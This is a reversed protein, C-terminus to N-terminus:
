HKLQSLVYNVLHIKEITQEVDSNMKLLINDYAKVATLHFDSHNTWEAFANTGIATCEKLDFTKASTKDAHQRMLNWVYKLDSPADAVKQYREVLQSDVMKMKNILQMRQDAYSTCLQYIATTQLESRDMGDSKLEIEPIISNNAIDRDISLDSFNDIRIGITTLKQAMEHDIVATYNWYIDGREQCHKGQAEIFARDLAADDLSNIHTAIENLHNTQMTDLTSAADVAISNLSSIVEQLSDSAAKGNNEIVADGVSSIESQPITLAQGNSEPASPLSASELPEGLKEKLIQVYREQSAVINKDYAKVLEKLVDGIREIIANRM